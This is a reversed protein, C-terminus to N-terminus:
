TEGLTNPASNVFLNRLKADTIKAALKNLSDEFPPSTVCRDAVPPRGDPDFKGCASVAGLGLGASAAILTFLGAYRNLLPSLPPSPLFLFSSSFSTAM